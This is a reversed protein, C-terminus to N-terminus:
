QKRMVLHGAVFGVIFIVSTGFVIALYPHLQGLMPMAEPFFAALTMIVIVALGTVVAVVVAMKSQVSTFAGLLFLGLVGGSFISAFKWWADLASKTNIMAVGVILGLLAVTATSAYLVIM